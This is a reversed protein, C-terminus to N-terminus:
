CGGGGGDTHQVPRKKLKLVFFSVVYIVNFHMGSIGSDSKGYSIKSDTQHRSHSLRRALVVLAASSM